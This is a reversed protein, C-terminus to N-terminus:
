CLQSYIGSENDTIVKLLSLLNDTYRTYWRSQSEHCCSVCIIANPAFLYTSLPHFFTQKSISPHALLYPFPHIPSEYFTFQYHISSTQFASPPIIFLPISSYIFTQHFTSFPYISLDISVHICPCYIFLYIYPISLHSSLHTSQHTTIPHIFSLHIFLSYVSSHIISLHISPHVAFSFISSHTFLCHFSPYIHTIHIFVSAYICPILSAFPYIFLPHFISLHATSLSFILPNACPIHTSSLNYIM